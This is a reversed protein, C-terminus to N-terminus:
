LCTSLCVCTALLSLILAGIGIGCVFDSFNWVHHSVIELARDIKKPLFNSKQVKIGLLILHNM